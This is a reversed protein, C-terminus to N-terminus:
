LEPVTLHFNDNRAEVLCLHYGRKRSLNVFSKRKDRSLLGGQTAASTTELAGPEFFSQTVMFAAAFEDVSQGVREASTILREMMSETAAERSDNINAALLPNGMRDRLVVDFSEETRTEQGDETYTVEVVGSLEARDVRPLADYLDSLEKEHGTSRIEFFLERIVWQVFQYEATSRLFEDYSRGSVAVNADEFTTHVELRLNEDVNEKRVSSGHAKKLTADGKSHYRVFLDTGALAESASMRREADTAAGLETELRELESQLQDVEERLEDREERLTEREERLSEILEESEEQDGQVRELETELRDIEAERESVKDELEEVREPDATPQEEEPQPESTPEAGSQTETQQERQSQTETTKTGATESLHKQSAGPNTGGTVNRSSQNSEQTDVSRDPDLSPIARHELDRTAATAGARQNGTSEGTRGVTGSGRGQDAREQTKDLGKPEQQRSGPESTEGSRSKSSTRETSSRSATAPQEEAETETQNARQTSQTAQSETGTERTGDGQATTASDRETATPETASATTEVDGSPTDGEQTSGATSEIGVGETAKNTTDRDNKEEVAESDGITETGSEGSELSPDSNRKDESATAPEAPEPIEIIDIDVKYVQFIGVEGDAREFAEDGDLLQKSEGVYAASMSEGAHYVQYYDGSLVNEALEIYGTFGGDSLTRDVEAISTKESYYKAHVDGAQEQMVALLPLADSPAEYVTGSADEFDDIDGQRIGVCAGRTMYLEAAGARVVGSFDKEALSQLERFGGDFSRSDWKEVRDVVRTSM